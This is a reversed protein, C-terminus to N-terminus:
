RWSVKLYAPVGGLDIISVRFGDARFLDALEDAMAAVYGPLQVGPLDLVLSTMGAQAARVLRWHYGRYTPPADRRVRDWEAETPEAYANDPPDIERM